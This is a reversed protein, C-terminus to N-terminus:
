TLKDYDIELRKLKRAVKKEELAAKIQNYKRIMLIYDLSLSDSIAELVIESPLAIGSEIKSIYVESVAVLNALDLQTLQCKLRTDKIINGLEETSVPLKRQNISALKDRRTRQKSLADFKHAIKYEAIIKNSDLKLYNSLGRLMKESPVKKGSEIQSIYSESVGFLNALDKQTYHAKERASKLHRGLDKKTKM